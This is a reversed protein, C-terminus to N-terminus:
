TKVKATRTAISLIRSITSYHLDPEPTLDQIKSDAVRQTVQALDHGTRESYFKGARQVM